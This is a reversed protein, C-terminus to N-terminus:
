PAAKPALAEPPPIFEAGDGPPLRFRGHDWDGKDWAEKAAEIKERSSAM